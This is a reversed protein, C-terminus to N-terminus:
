TIVCVEKASVHPMSQSGDCLRQCEVEVFSNCVHLRNLEGDGAFGKSVADAVSHGEPESQVKILLSLEVSPWVNLLHASSQSDPDLM